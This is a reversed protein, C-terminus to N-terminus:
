KKETRGEIFLDLEKQDIRLTRGIRKVPLRGAAIANYLSKPSYGLYRAAEQIDILKFRAEYEM